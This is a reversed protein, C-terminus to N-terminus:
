NKKKDLAKVTKDLATIKKNRAEVVENLTNKGESFNALKQHFETFQTSVKQNKDDTFAQIEGTMINNVQNKINKKLKHYEMIFHTKFHAWTKHTATM